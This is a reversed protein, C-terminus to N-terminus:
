RCRDSAAAACTGSTSSASGNCATVCAKCDKPCKNLDVLLGWRVKASAAATNAAKAAPQAAAEPAVTYLVVGPALMAAGAGAAGKLFSRRSASGAREAKTDTEASM